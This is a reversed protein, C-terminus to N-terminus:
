RPQGDLDGFRCFQTPFVKITLLVWLVEVGVAGLDM